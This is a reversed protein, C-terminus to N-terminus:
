QAEWEFRVINRENRDVEVGILFIKFNQARYKDAYGKKHIQELAAAPDAINDLIPKDYEDVLVVTRLGYKEASNRILEGFCGPIDEPDRCTIGLIKQNRYLIDVIRRDLEERNRVVGGGFSIQIVPYQKEWDLDGVHEHPQKRNNRISIDM